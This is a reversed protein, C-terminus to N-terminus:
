KTLKYVFTNQTHILIGIGIGIWRYCLLTLLFIFYINGERQRLDIRKRLLLLNEQNPASIEVGVWEIGWRWWWWRRQRLSVVRVVYGWNWNVFFVRLLHRLCLFYWIRRWKLDVRVRLFVKKMRRNKTRNIHISNRKVKREEAETIIIYSISHFSSRRRKVGHVHVSSSSLHIHPLFAINFVFFFVVLVLDPM